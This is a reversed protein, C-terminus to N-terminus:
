YYEQIWVAYGLGILEALILIGWFVRFITMQTQAANQANKVQTAPSESSLGIKSGFVPSLAGVTNLFVTGSKPLQLVEFSTREDGEDDSDFWNFDIWVDAEKRLYKGTAGPIVDKADIDQMPLLFMNMPYERGAMNVKTAEVEQSDIEDWSYYTEQHCEEYPVEVAVTETTYGGEGDPVTQTEYETRYETECVTREHQTYREQIKRVRPFEKNMEPFKVTDVQKVTVEALIKGQQTDISYNFENDNKTQIATQYMRAKQEAGDVIKNEIWVGISLLFVAGALVALSLILKKNTLYTETVKNPFMM